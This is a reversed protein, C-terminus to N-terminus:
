YLFGFLWIPIKSSTSHLIDDAVVFSNQEDWVQKRNKSKGGIEFVYKEDVLFDGVSSYSVKHQTEVQNFFFTERSNGVNYNKPALAQSLNTNQLFIKEPKSISSYSKGADFLLNLLDAHDLYQIYQNLTSRNLELSGALKSINPQFPVAKSLQSLLKKIKFINHVNIGLVYPLDVDLILNLINILKQHYSTKSELYFPYYGHNLYAKYQPLINIEKSLEHSLDMHNNVIDELTLIPLTSNNEIELYERLSLGNLKYSVMRRSLDHNSAYLQLVSSSTVVVKLKKLQDYINKLEQSWNPYRHIEDIYLTKGGHSLHYKAIEIISYGQLTMDDMSVYLAELSTGFCEQIHQLLLTTKGVGRAGKLAILREEWGIEDIANRRFNLDLNQILELHNDYLAEM